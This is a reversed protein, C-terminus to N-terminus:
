QALFLAAEPRGNALCSNVALHGNGATRPHDISAGYELLTTMLANQVDALLPHISTAVFGLTTSGGYMEAVADVEAGAKLLMEAVKVANKPTKQRFGEIGNAGVYHLLTAHHKRTSRARILGPDAGLLGALTSLEGAIIAEVAAEFRSVASNKLK